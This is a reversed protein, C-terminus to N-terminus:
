DKQRSWKGSSLSNVPQLMAPPFLSVDTAEARCAPLRNMQLDTELIALIM